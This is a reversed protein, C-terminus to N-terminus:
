RKSYPPTGVGTLMWSEYLADSTRVSTVWGAHGDAYGWNWGGAGHNNQPDPSNNADKPYGPVSDDADLVIVIRTPDFACTEPSKRVGARQDREFIGFFEYSHGGKNSLRNGGSTNQLDLIIGASNTVNQRIINKTSPCIFTKLNSIYRKYFSVPAEDSGITATNYFYGPYDEAYGHAAIMVQRTNNQCSIRNSKEKAKSLAPLLMSALIAIIAIVVLLEILTFGARFSCAERRGVAKWFM